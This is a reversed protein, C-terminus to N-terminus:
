RCQLYDTIKAAHRKLSPMKSLPDTKKLIGHDGLDSQTVIDIQFPRYKAFEKIKGANSGILVVKM